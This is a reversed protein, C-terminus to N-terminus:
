KEEKVTFFDNDCGNCHYYNHTAKRGLTSSVIAHDVFVVNDSKNCKTCSPYTCTPESSAKIPEGCYHLGVEPYKEDAYKFARETLEKAVIMLNYEKEVGILNICAKLFFERKNM